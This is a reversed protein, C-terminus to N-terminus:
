HFLSPCNSLGCFIYLHPCLNHNGHEWLLKNHIAIEVGGIFVIWILFLNNSIVM